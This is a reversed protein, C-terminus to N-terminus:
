SYHTTMAVVFFGLLRAFDREVLEPVELFFGAALFAEAEEELDFPLVAAREDPDVADVRFAGSLRVAEAEFRFAGAFRAAAADVRLVGAFVARLVAGFDPLLAFALAAAAATGSISTGVLFATSALAAAVSGLRRGPRRRPDSARQIATPPSSAATTTTNTTIAPPPLSSLLGVTAPVCAAGAGGATGGAAEVGAGVALAGATVVGEAAAGTALAATRVSFQAGIM